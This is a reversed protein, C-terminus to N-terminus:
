RDIWGDMWRNTEKNTQGDMQKNTQIQIDINRYKKYTQGSVVQGVRDQGIDQGTRNTQRDIM